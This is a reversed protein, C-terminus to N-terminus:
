QGTTHDDPASKRNFRNTFSGTVGLVVMSKHKLASLMIKGFMPFDCCSCLNISLFSPFVVTFEYFHHNFSYKHHIVNVM